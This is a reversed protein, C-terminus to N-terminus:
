MHPTTDNCTVNFPIEKEEEEEVVDTINHLSYFIIAKRRPRSASGGCLRFSILCADSIVLFASSIKTNQVCSQAHM